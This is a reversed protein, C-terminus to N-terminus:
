TKHTPEFPRNQSMLFICIVAASAGAVAGVIMWGFMAVPIFDVTEGRDVMRHAAINDSRSGWAGGALGGLLFGLVVFLCGGLVLCGESIRPM